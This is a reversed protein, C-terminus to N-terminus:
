PNMIKLLENLLRKATGDNRIGGNANQVIVATKEGRDSLGIRFTDTNTSLKKWFGEPTMKVVYFGDRYNKDLFDFGMGELAFGVTQWAKAYPQKIALARNGQLTAMEAIVPDVNEGVKANALIQNAANEGYGLYIMMKRLMEIELEPESGADVWGYTGGSSKQAYHTIFIDTANGRTDLRTRYKDRFPASQLSSLLESLVGDGKDNHEFWDTEMLGIGPQSSKVVFGQSAWFPELRQWIATAPAGIRIWRRLGEGMLVAQPVNPNVVPARETRGDVLMIDNVAAYQSVKPPIVLSRGSNATDYDARRDIEITKSSCGSLTILAGFGLALLKTSLTVHM